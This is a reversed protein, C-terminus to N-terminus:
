KHQLYLFLLVTLTILGWGGWEMWRRLSKDLREGGLWLVITILYFQIGRGVISAIVFPFFALQMVGSSITFIKYPIPTVGALLVLWVGYHDFWQKMNDFKDAVHYMDIIPQGIQDFLFRGIIYGFVGGAVSTITTLTGLWWARHPSAIIMPALMLAVPIPFFSAEAFSVASLYYEAHHHRAWKLTKEYIPLFLSSM